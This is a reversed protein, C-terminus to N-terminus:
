DKLYEHTFALSIADFIGMNYNESEWKKRPAPALPKLEEFGALIKQSIEYKTEAGFQQFTLKIQERSYAHVPLLREKALQSIEELLSTIRRARFTLSDGDRLVVVSPRYFDLQKGIRKIIRSNCVPRVTVIGSDILKDPMQVCAYGFGRENPYIALIPKM